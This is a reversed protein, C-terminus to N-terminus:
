RWLYNIFSLKSLEIKEVPGCRYYKNDIEMILILDYFGPNLGNLASQANFGSKMSASNSFAKAVDARINAEVPMLLAVSKDSKSYLALLTKNALIGQTASIAAWGTINIKSNDKLVHLKELGGSNNNIRDINCQGISPLKLINEDRLFSPLNKQNLQNNPIGPYPDCGILPITLLLFIILKLANSM